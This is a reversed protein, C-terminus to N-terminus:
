YKRHNRKCSYCYEELINMQKSLLNIEKHLLELRKPCRNKLEILEQYLTSKLQQFYENPASFIYLTLLLIKHKDEGVSKSIVKYLDTKSVEQYLIEMMKYHEECISKEDFIPLIGQFSDIKKSIIGFYENMNELENLTKDNMLANRWEHKNTIHCLISCSESNRGITLFGRPEGSIDDIPLMANWLSNLSVWYPPYKFRAVDLLLLLDREKNYGGIPSYHGSGTQSLSKRDFCAIIHFPHKTNMSNISNQIVTRFEDESSQNSPYIKTSVGNLKATCYFERFTIGEKQVLEFPKITQLTEESFYRWSGKWLRNPDLNLSNMVMSLTGLSCDLIFSHIFYM